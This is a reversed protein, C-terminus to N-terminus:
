EIPKNQRRLEPKPPFSILFVADAREQNESKAAKIKAHASMASAPPAKEGEDWAAGCANRPVLTPWTTPASNSPRM